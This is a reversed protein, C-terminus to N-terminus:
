SLTYTVAHGSRILPKYSRRVATVKFDAFIESERQHVTAFTMSPVDRQINAALAAFIPPTADKNTFLLAQLGCLQWM